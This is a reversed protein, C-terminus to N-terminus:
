KKLLLASRTFVKDEHNLFGEGCTYEGELNNCKLLKILQSCKKNQKKIMTKQAQQLIDLPSNSSTTNFHSKTPLDIVEGICEMHKLQHPFVSTNVIEDDFFKLTNPKRASKINIIKDEFNYSSNQFFNSIKEETILQLYNQSQFNQQNSIPKKHKIDSSDRSIFSVDIKSDNIECKTIENILNSHESSDYHLYLSSSKQSLKDGLNSEKIPSVFGSFLELNSSQNMWKSSREKIKPLSSFDHITSKSIKDTNTEDSYKVIIGTGKRPQSKKDFVSKWTSDSLPSDDRSIRYDFHMNQINPIHRKHHHVTESSTVSSGSDLYLGTHLDYETSPSSSSFPCFYSQFNPHVTTDHDQAISSEVNSMKSEHYVSLEEGSDIYPLFNSINSPLQASTDLPTQVFTLNYTINLNQSFYPIYNNFQCHYKNTTQQQYDKQIHSCAADTIKLSKSFETNLTSSLDETYYNLLHKNSISSKKNKQSAAKHTDQYFRLYTGNHISNSTYLNSNLQNCTTTNIQTNEKILNDSTPYQSCIKTINQYNEFSMNAELQSIKIQTPTSSSYPM